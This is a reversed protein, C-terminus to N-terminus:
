PTDESGAALLTVVRDQVQRAGLIDNSNMLLAFAYREGGRSVVRGALASVGNLYGTKARVRKTAPGTLFRRILTGEGGRALSRILPEGWSPEAEAAVILRALSAASLRNARSLGSGDHLRDGPALVGRDELLTRTRATGAATTGTGTGYAGVAKALTEAVFNDSDLNMGHLIAPLPPSLAAGLPRAGAPTVGTVIGGSQRVGVGRLAARVRQGAAVPPSAVYARRGNGAFDQNTALASLPSIYASYYGPWGPVARRGDFLTEDAVIRGKIRRIGQARVPRVLEALTTARGSLYGAAYGRTALVPDGAGRLFVRGVLTRGVIRADPAALLRTEFRFAPGLELLAGAGTVLKMTSAPIRPTQARFEAVVTTAGSPEIRWVAASTRPNAAGWADIARDVAGPAASAVPALALALLAAALGAAARGGRGTM